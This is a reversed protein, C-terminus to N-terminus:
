LLEFTTVVLIIMERARELPRGRGKRLCTRKTLAATGHLAKAGSPGVHSIGALAYAEDMVRALELSGQGTSMLEGLDKSGANATSLSPSANSVARVLRSFALM